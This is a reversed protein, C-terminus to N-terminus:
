GPGARQRAADRYAGGGQGEPNRRWVSDIHGSRDERDEVSRQERHGRTRRRPHSFRSQGARNQRSGARTPFAPPKWFTEIWGRGTIWKGPETKEVREKVKALFDERTNTGELNLTMEREGIGFIHCHSDTMGPVVTAGHLDIMRTEKKALKKAEDNSGVLVIRDKRVAVAEAHPQRENVTYINGNWFILDADQGAHLRSSLPLFALVFWCGIRFFCAKVNVSQRVKSTIM